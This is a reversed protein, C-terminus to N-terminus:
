AGEEKAFHSYGTFAIDRLEGQPNKLMVGEDSSITGVRTLGLGPEAEAVGRALAPLDEPACTLLLEFDEGGCLAWHLPDAGMEKAARSMAPALPIRTEELLAGVGSAQCMRAMDTALGDSIDMMAHVLGSQALALGAAVRPHPRLHAATLPQARPDDAPRGAQLWALGAAASGLVGTVCVADGERAGSRLVPGAKTAAGVLCLNIVVQPSSVTDGGALRLGHTRGLGDLGKVLESIFGAQPRGPLGLSLSGWGPRAGMAALDSLNAAMARHGLDQPSVFQLDFHVGEVLLDTTVCFLGSGLRLVAADDGMGVRLDGGSGGALSEILRVAEGESLGSPSSPSAM